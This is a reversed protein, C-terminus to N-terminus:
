LISDHCRSSSVPNLTIGTNFNLYCQIDVVNIQGSHGYLLIVEVTSYVNVRWVVNIKLKLAM